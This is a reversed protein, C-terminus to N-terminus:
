SVSTDLSGHETRSSQHWGARHLVVQPKPSASPPVLGPSLSDKQGGEERGPCGAAGGAGAAPAQALGGGGAVQETGAAAPGASDALYSGTGQVAEGSAEMHSGSGGRVGHPGEQRGLGAVLALDIGAVEAFGPLEESRGAGPLAAWVPLCDVSYKLTHTFPTFNSSHPDAEWKAWGCGCPGLHPDPAAPGLATRGSIQQPVRPLSSERDSNTQEEVSHPFDALGTARLGQLCM